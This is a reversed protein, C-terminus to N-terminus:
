SGTSTKPNNRNKREIFRRDIEVPLYKTENGEEDVTIIKIVKGCRPCTFENPKM